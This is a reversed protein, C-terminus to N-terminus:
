SSTELVETSEATAAAPFQVVSGRGAALAQRCRAAFAMDGSNRVHRAAVFLDPTRILVLSVTAAFTVVKRTFADEREEPPRLRFPNGFLVGIAMEDVDDRAFDESINRHLQSAKKVDVAKNDRGEVEGIFRGENSVFIADFESQDDEFHQVEFGLIGLAERVAAELLPGTEYLLARLAGDRELQLELDAHQARLREIEKTISLMQSETVCETDFRYASAAVWEPAETREDTARLRKDLGFLTDRLRLTFQLYDESWREEGQDDVGGDSGDYDDDGQDSGDGETESQHLHGWTLEPLIILNGAGVRLKAAVAHEGGKTTLLTTSGGIDEFYCRYTSHPGFERWYEALFEAGEKTTGFGVGDAVSMKSLRLPLFDYSSCAQVMKALRPKGATGENQTEGTYFFYKQPATLFFVVTRGAKLAADLQAAWRVKTERYTSSSSEELKPVGQYSGYTSFAHLSPEVIIIDADLM